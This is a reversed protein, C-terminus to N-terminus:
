VIENWKVSVYVGGKSRGEIPQRTLGSRPGRGRAHMKDRVMHKLKQYFVPGSFVFMQLPHGTIEV